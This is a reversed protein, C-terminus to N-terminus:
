ALLDSQLIVKNNIIDQIEEDIEDEKFKIIVPKSKDKINLCYGINPDAILNNILREKNNEKESIKNLIISVTNFWTYNSKLINSRADYDSLKDLNIDLHKDFTLIDLEKIISKHVSKDRIVSRVNCFALEYLFYIDPIPGNIVCISAKSLEWIYDIYSDFKITKNDYKIKNSKIIGIKAKSPYNALSYDKTVSQDLLIIHKNDKREQYIHPDLPIPVYHCKDNFDPLWNYTFLNDEGSYFKIHRCFTSLSLCKSKLYSIFSDTAECLGTDGIFIIHDIHDPIYNINPNKFSVKMDIEPFCKHISINIDKFNELVTVKFLYAVFEDKTKCDALKNLHCNPSNILLLIRM